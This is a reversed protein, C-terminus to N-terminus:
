ITNKHVYVCNDFWMFVTNIKKEITVVKNEDLFAELPNPDDQNGWALIRSVTGIEDLKKSRRSIISM